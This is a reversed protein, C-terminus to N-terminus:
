LQKIFIEVEVINKEDNVIYHGLYKSIDPLSTMDTIENVESVNSLIEKVKKTSLSM